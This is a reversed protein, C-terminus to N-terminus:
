VSKSDLVKAHGARGKCVCQHFVMDWLTTVSILFFSVLLFLPACLPKLLSLDDFNAIQSDIGGAVRSSDCYSRVYGIEIHCNLLSTIHLPLCNRTSCSKCSSHTDFRAICLTTHYSCPESLWFDVGNLPYTLPNPNDCSHMVGDVLNFWRRQVADSVVILLSRVLWTGIM